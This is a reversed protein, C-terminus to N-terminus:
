NNSPWYPDQIGFKYKRVISRIGDESYEKIKAIHAIAKERTYGFRGLLKLAVGVRYAEDVQRRPGSRLPPAGLVLLCLKWARLLNPIPEGTRELEDYLRDLGEKALPETPALSIREVLLEDKTHQSPYSRESEESPAERWQRPLDAFDPIVPHNKNLIDDLVRDLAPDERPVRPKPGRRESM